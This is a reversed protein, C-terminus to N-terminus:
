KVEPLGKISVLLSIIGSLLAASVVVRWDVQTLLATSGITALTTEAITKLARVAAAKLWKAFYAKIIIM